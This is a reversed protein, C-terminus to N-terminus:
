IINYIYIKSLSNGHITINSHFKFGVKEYFGIARSLSEGVVVRFKKIAWAIILMIPSLSVIGLISFIIDLIRKTIAYLM